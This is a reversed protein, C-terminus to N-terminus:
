VLEASRGIAARLRGPRFFRYYGSEVVAAEFVAGGLRAAEDQRRLIAQVAHRELPVSWTAWTWKRTRNERVMGITGQGQLCPFYPLSEWALWYAGAVGELALSTPANHTQAGIRYSAPDWGWSSVNDEYHWPGFLAETFKDRVRKVGARGRDPDLWEALERAMKIMRMPGSTFCLSLPEVTDGEQRWYARVWRLTDADSTAVIERYRDLALKRVDDALNLDARRSRGRMAEVLHDLLVERDVNDIRALCTDPDWSLKAEPPAIRILGVAAMFGVPMDGRLATLTLSM